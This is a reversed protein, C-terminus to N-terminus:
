KALPIPADEPADVEFTHAALCTMTFCGVLAVLAGLHELGLIDEVTAYTADSLTKSTLLKHAVLRCNRERPDAIDPARSTNIAEIVPQEM